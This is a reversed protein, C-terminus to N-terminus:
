GRGQPRHIGNFIPDRYRNQCASFRKQANVSPVVFPRRNGYGRSYERHSVKNHTRRIQAPLRHKPRELVGKNPPSPMHHFCNRKARGLELLSFALLARNTNNCTAAVSSHIRTVGRPYEERSTEKNFVLLIFAM